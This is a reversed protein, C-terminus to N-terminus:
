VCRCLIGCGRTVTDSGDYSHVYTLIATNKDFSM